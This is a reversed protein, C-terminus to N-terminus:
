NITSSYIQFLKTYHLDSRFERSAKELAQEGFSLRLSKGDIMNKIKEVLEAVNGMSFLFGTKGDEVLEPLRNKRSATMPKGLAVSEIM